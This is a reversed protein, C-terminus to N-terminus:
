YNNIKVGINNINQSYNKPSALSTISKINAVCLLSSFNDSSSGCVEYKIDDHARIHLTM